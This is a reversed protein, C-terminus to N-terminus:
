MDTPDDLEALRQTNKTAVNQACTHLAREKDRKRTFGAVLDVFLDAVEDTSWNKFSIEEVDKKFKVELFHVTMARHKVVELQKKLGGNSPTQAGCEPCPNDHAAHSCNPWAAFSRTADGM